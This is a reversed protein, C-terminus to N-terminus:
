PLVSNLRPSSYLESSRRTSATSAPIDILRTLFGITLERGAKKVKRLQGLITPRSRRQAYQTRAITALCKVISDPQWPEGSAVLFHAERENCRICHVIVGRLGLIQAPVVHSTLMSLAHSSHLCIWPRHLASTNTHHFHVQTTKM